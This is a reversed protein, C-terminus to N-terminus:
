RLPAVDKHEEIGISLLYDYQGSVVFVKTSVVHQKHSSNVYKIYDRCFYNILYVAFLVSNM